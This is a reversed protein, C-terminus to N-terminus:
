GRQDQDEEGNMWPRGKRFTAVGFVFSDEKLDLLVEVIGVKQSGPVWVGVAAVPVADVTIEGGMADVGEGDEGALEGALNGVSDTVKGVKLGEDEALKGVEGTLDGLGNGLELM